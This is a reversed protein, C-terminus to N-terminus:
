PEGTCVIRVFESAADSPMQSPVPPLRGKLRLIVRGAM